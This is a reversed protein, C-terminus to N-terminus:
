YHHYVNMQSAKHRIIFILRILGAVQLTVIFLSLLGCNFNLGVKTV